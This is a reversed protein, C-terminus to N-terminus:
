LLVTPNADWYAICYLGWYAIPLFKTRLISYTYPLLNLGRIATRYMGYVGVYIDFSNCNDLINYSSM